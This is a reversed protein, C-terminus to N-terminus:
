DTPRPSLGLSRELRAISAPTLELKRACLDHRDFARKMLRRRQDVQRNPTFSQMPPSRALAKGYLEATDAQPGVGAELYGDDGERPSTM